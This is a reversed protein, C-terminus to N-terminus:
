NTMLYRCKSVYKSAKEADIALRKACELIAAKEFPSLTEPLPLVSKVGNKDFVCRSAFLPTIPSMVESYVMACETIADDLGEGDHHNEAKEIADLIRLTFIAITYGATLVSSGNGGGRTHIYNMIDQTENPTLYIDM